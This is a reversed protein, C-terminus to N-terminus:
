RDKVFQEVRPKLKGEHLAFDDVTGLRLTRLNPSGSGIRYMLTGCVSCFYSAMEHGSAITKRQVYRALRDQGRIHTLHSSRVLFNSAFMSGTIKRCDTCNCIFTAVLGPKETPQPKCFSESM